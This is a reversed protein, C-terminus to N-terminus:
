PAYGASGPRSGDGAPLGMARLARRAAAYGTAPHREFIREFEVGLAAFEAKPAVDEMVGLVIQAYRVPGFHVLNRLVKAHTSFLGPGYRRVISAVIAHSAPTLAPMDRVLRLHPSTDDNILLYAEIGDIDLALRSVPRDLSFLFLRM